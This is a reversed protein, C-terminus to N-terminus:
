KKEASEANQSGDVENNNNVNKGSVLSDTTMTFQSTEEPWPLSEEHVLKSNDIQPWPVKEKFILIRNQIDEQLRNVDETNCSISGSESLLKTRKDDFDFERCLNTKTYVQQGAYVGIFAAAAFFFCKAYYGSNAYVYTVDDESDDDEAEYDYNNNNNKKKRKPISTFQFICDGVIGSSQDYILYEATINYGAYFQDLNGTTPITYAFKIGFDGEDLSCDDDSCLSFSETFSLQQSPSYGGTLQQFTSNAWADFQFSADMTVGLSSVNNYTFYGSINGQVGMGCKGDCRFSGKLAEVAYNEDCSVKALNLKNARYSLSSRLYFLVLISTVALM